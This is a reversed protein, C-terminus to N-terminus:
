EPIDDFVEDRTLYAHFAFLGYVYGVILSACLVFDGLEVGGVM